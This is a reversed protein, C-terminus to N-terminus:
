QMSRACCTVTAGVLAETCRCVGGGVIFGVNLDLNFGIEFNGDFAVDFSVGFGVKARLFFGNATQLRNYLTVISPARKFKKNNM